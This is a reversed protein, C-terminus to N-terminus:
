QILTQPVYFYCDLLAVNIAVLVLAKFFEAQIKEKETYNTEM